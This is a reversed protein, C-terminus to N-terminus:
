AASRAEIKRLIDVLRVVDAHEFVGEVGKSDFDTFPAEYLLGPDMVGRATLHDIILNLLENQDATLKRQVLFESFAQKAAERDLGILSRVFRVLGGDARVTALSVQDAGAEILIRELEALDTQTM